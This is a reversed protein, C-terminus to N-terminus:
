NALIDDLSDLEDKTANELELIKSSLLEYFHVIVAMFNNNKFFNLIPSQEFSIGIYHRFQWNVYQDQFIEHLSAQKATEDIFLHYPLYDYFDNFDILTTNFNIERYLQFVDSTMEEDLIISPPIIKFFDLIIDEDTKPQELKEKIIKLEPIIFYKLFSYKDIENCLAFINLRNDNSLSAESKLLKNYGREKKEFSINSVFKAAFYEQISRHPFRYEFGDRLFISISTELDYLLDEIELTSYKYKKKVIEIIKSFYEFTFSYQGDTFSLYSFLELIQQFDERQLKTKKERPFSNKTIGDHKSYLTDFVNSYFAAKKSPIEPHSEFALIFMSLLLPNSLFEKYNDNLPDNISSIIRTQREPNEVMLTVYQAIENETLPSVSFNFFRGFGEIGSGPRTTLVFKNKSYSDIFLDIQKNVKQKKNSYIEDYGDLLFLFEGKKLTRKAISESPELSTNLIKSIILKELDGDFENLHRLEILIPIKYSEIISNLFIFKTLTSKGSGAIGNIIIFNYKTFVAKINKFTYSQKKYVAKVSFYYKLFVIKEGRHLFTNAFYYKNVQDHLYDELGFEFFHRYENNLAKYARVIPDVLNTAEITPSNM